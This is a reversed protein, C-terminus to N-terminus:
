QKEKKGELLEMMVILNTTPLKCAYNEGIFPTAEGNLKGKDVDDWPM